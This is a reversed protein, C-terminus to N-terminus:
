TFGRKKWANIHKLRQLSNPHINKKLVNECLEMIKSIQLHFLALWIRHQICLFGGWRKFYYLSGEGRFPNRGSWLDMKINKNQKTKKTRYSCNWFGWEEYLCFNWLQCHLQILEHDKVTRRRRRRKVVKAATGTVKKTEDNRVYVDFLFCCFHNRYRSHYLCSQKTTQIQIM